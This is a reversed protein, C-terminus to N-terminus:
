IIIFINCRVYLDLPCLFSYYPGQSKCLPGWCVLPFLLRTWSKEQVLAADGGGPVVGSPVVFGGHFTVMSRTLFFCQRGDPERAPLFLMPRWEVLLFLLLFVALRGDYHAANGGSFAARRGGHHAAYSTSRQQQHARVGVAIEVGAQFDEILVLIAPGLLNLEAQDGDSRKVLRKDWGESGGGRRCCSSLILLLYGEVVELDPIGM